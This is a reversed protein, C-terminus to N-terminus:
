MFRPFLDEKSRKTDIRYRQQEEQQQQTWIRNIVLALVLIMMTLWLLGCFYYMGLFMILPAGLIFIYLYLFAIPHMPNPSETNHKLDSPKGGLFFNTGRLDLQWADITVRKM